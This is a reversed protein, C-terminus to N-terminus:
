REATIRRRFPLVPLGTPGYVGCQPFDQYQFRLWQPQLYQKLCIQVVSVGKVQQHTVSSWADFVDPDESTSVEFPPEKCCKTCNATGQLILQVSQFAVNVATSCHEPPPRVHTASQPQPGSAVAGPDQYAVMRVALALRRGLEIKGGPPHIDSAVGLDHASALGM